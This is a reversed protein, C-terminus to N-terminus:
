STKEVSSRESQGRSTSHEEQFVTKVVNESAHGKDFECYKARFKKLKEEYVMKYKRLDAISEILEGTTKVLPGPAERELDM